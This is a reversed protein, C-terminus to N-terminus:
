DRYHGTDPPPSLGSALTPDPLIEGGTGPSPGRADEMRESVAGRLTRPPGGCSIGGFDFSMAIFSCDPLRWDPSDDAIEGLAKARADLEDRAEVEVEWMRTTRYVHVHFRPM